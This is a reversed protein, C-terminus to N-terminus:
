TGEKAGSKKVTQRALAIRRSSMSLTTIGKSVLRPIYAPDAAMEGCVSVKKGHKEAASAINTLLDWFVESDYSYDEAVVENNRDAAFLYQILDNTGISVFDSSSILREAELCASPVELMPGHSIDGSTLDSTLEDFKERIVLYQELGTVMPYLVNVSGHRSARVLARAQNELLDPRRLLLRVGRCGLAPNDEEALEFVGSTKDAGIDLLRFYVPKGDMAELVQRYLGYQEEEDLLRNVSFFEFETRYLGIGEAKMAAAEGAEAAISINAMVCLSDVPDEVEPASRDSIRAQANKRTEEEPRIVVEGSDGDVMIETGCPIINHIDPIGSVAPIGLARSLIAAHSLQGGREMVFGLITDTEMDISMAPTLEETIVIRDSGRRCHAESACQFSPRTNLLVDLLRRKIEGMDSAREKMYADDLELLQSEFDDLTQMVATEANCGSRLMEEMKKLSEPDSVIMKQASFIEAEAKGIRTSVTEVLRDLKALVSEIASDLRAKERAFGRDSVTYVPLKEHRSDNYLCVRGLIVGPSIPLGKFRTEGDKNLQM